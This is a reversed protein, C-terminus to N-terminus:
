GSTHSVTIDNKGEFVYVIAITKGSLENLSEKYKDIRMKIRWLLLNDKISILVDEYLQFLCLFIFKNYNDMSYSLIFTYLLSVVDWISVFLVVAILTASANFLISPMGTDAKAFSREAFHAFPSIVPASIFAARIAFCLFIDYTLKHVIQVQNRVTCDKFVQKALLHFLAQNPLPQIIEHM